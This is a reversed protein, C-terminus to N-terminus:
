FVTYVFPAVYEAAHLLVLLLGTLVLAGVLPILWWRRNAALLVCLELLAEARARLLRVSLM